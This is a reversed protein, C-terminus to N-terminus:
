FVWLNLTVTASANLILTREPTPNTAQSDWVVANANRGVVIWGQLTRALTHSLILPTGATVGVGVLLVGDLIEKAILPRFASQIGEQVANLVRDPTRIVDVGKLAM